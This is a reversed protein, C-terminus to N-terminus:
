FPLWRSFVGLAGCDARRCLWASGVLEDMAAAGRRLEVAQEPTALPLLEDVSGEFTPAGCDPCKARGFLAALEAAPPLGFSEGPYM